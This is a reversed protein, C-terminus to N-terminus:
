YRYVNVNYTRPTSANMTVAGMVLNNAAAQIAATRESAAIVAWVYRGIM